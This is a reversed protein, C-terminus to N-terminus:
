LDGICGKLDVRNNSKGQHICRQFFVEVNRVAPDPQEEPYPPMDQYGVAKSNIM